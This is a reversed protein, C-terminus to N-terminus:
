DLELHITFEIETAVRRGQIKAPKFGYRGALQVAARAFMSTPDALVTARAVTSRSTAAIKLSSPPLYPAGRMSFSSRRRPCPGTLLSHGGGHQALPQDGTRLPAPPRRRVRTM